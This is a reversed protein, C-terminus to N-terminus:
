EALPKRFRLTMRDSEGIADYKARDFDAAPEAGRRATSRRSPPLTWVGFPHDATDAPNANIDSQADFEFGAESAMDMVFATQVYGTSAKPDQEQAGPLRHEIVCLVGGPKLAAYFDAFAKAGMGRGLWSHVNRFTLVLDADNNPMLPGSDASLVSTAIVGFRNNDSFTELYNDALTKFRESAAPDILAATYQGGNEKLWPAIVQTYWGGGPWIEVVSQQAELGCFELTEVPHRWVNRDVDEQPRWDGNAAWELSGVAPGKPAEAADPVTIQAVQEPQPANCSALCAALLGLCIPSRIVM